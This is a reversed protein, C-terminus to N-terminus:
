PPSPVPAPSQVQGPAEMPSHVARLALRRQVERLNLRAAANDPDAALVAQFSSAAQDLEGKEAQIQGIGGHALWFGPDLLIAHRFDAEARDKQGLEYYCRGRLFAHYATPELQFAREAQVLGAANRGLALYVEALAAGPAAEERAALAVAKRLVQEALEARGTRLLLVGLNQHARWERPHVEVAKRLLAEAGVYDGRSTRLRALSFTAELHDPDRALAQKYEEEAQGHNGQGELATGLLVLIEVDDPHLLHAINLDNFATEWSRSLPGEKRAQGMAERARALHPAVLTDLARTGTASSRLVRAERFVSELDDLGSGQLLGLFHRTAEQRMGLVQAQEATLEFLREPSAMAPLLAPLLPVENRAIRLPLAPRVAGPPPGLAGVVESALAVARDGVDLPSLLDLASLAKTRALFREEIRGFPLPADTATGVLVLSDAGRPPLWVQGAPFAGAFAALMRALSEPAFWDLYVAAVYVGDARLRRRVRDFFRGDTWAESATPWPARVLQLIAAEPRSSALLWTSTVPLLRMAPDLLAGRLQADREALIRVFRSQPVAVVVSRGGAEQVRPGLLVPDDGLVLWGGSPDALLAALEAALGVASVKRGIRETTLGEARLMVQRGGLLAAGTGEGSVWAGLLTTREDFRSSRDVYRPDGIRDISGESLDAIPLPPLLAGAASVAVTSALWALRVRPRRGFVLGVLSLAGAGLFVLFFTQEGAVVAGLVGGAAALGALARLSGEHSPTAAGGSVLVFPLLVMLVTSVTLSLGTALGMRGSLSVWAGSWAPLWTVLMAAATVGVAVGIPPRVSGETSGSRAFIFTSMAGLVVVWPLPTPDLHARVCIWASGAVWGAFVQVLLYGSSSVPSSGPRSVPPVLERSRPGPEGMRGGEGDLPALLLLAPIWGWSAACQFVWSLIMAAALVSPAWFGSLMVGRGTPLCCFTLALGWLACVLGVAQDPALGLAAIGTPVVDELLRPIVLVAAGLGFATVRVAGSLRIRAPFSRLVLIVACVVLGVVALNRPSSGIFGVLSRSGQGLVWGLSAPLLARRMHNWFQFATWTKM